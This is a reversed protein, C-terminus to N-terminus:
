ETIERLQQEIEEEPLNMESLLDRYRQFRGHYSPHEHGTGRKFDVAIALARRMLPEAEALRNTAQLLQALNNLAAAVNPHDEGYSKEFITVVRAMLPEAEALRNNAQLLQALCTLEKAVAPHEAGYSKENIALARRMLHEAEALRDTDQLLKALNSLRIAVKPHEAGCSREDISLARRLLPEAEALRNTARLLAALKTLHGATQSANANLDNIQRRIKLSEEFQLLARVADGSWGRARYFEGLREYSLSLDRAAQASRPNAAYLWQDIKLSQEFQAVARDADGSEVRALYVDGLMKLSMSLDRAAQASNPNAAYIQKRIGLSEEFHTLAREADSSRGHTLYFDGMNNLSVSLDRAAEASIPNAAYIQKRIKLSEEFETLARAADGSQVRALRFDGLREYSVSLDRAAEVSNPNAEYIQRRIKLSEEFQTLAREADGSQVRSWYFDALREMSVSLDRAAQVSDPNVEFLRQALEMSEEFRMRALEYDGLQGRLLYFDGLKNLLVILDRAATQTFGCKAESLSQAVYLSEKPHHIIQADSYQGSVRYYDNLKDLVLCLDRASQASYSKAEALPGSGDVHTVVSEFHPLFLTWRDWAKLDDPDIPNSTVLIRLVGALRRSKEEDTLRYRLMAQVLRHITLAHDKRHIVSYRSLTAMTVQLDDIELLEIWLSECNGDEFLQTPIPAPALFALHELMVRADVTLESFTTEWAASVSTSFGTKGADCWSLVQQRKSEWRQRYQSFSLRLELICAAAQELALPLCGLESVIEMASTDDDDCVQRGVATSELLFAVSAEVTLVDLHTARFRNSWRALRSTVLIRGGHLRAIIREVEGITEADDMGDVILLWGANEELWRLVAAFVCKRMAHM